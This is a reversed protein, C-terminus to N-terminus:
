CIQYLVIQSLRKGEQVTLVFQVQELFTLTMDISGVFSVSTVNLSARQANGPPRLTERAVNCLHRRDPTRPALSSVQKIPPLRCVDASAIVLNITAPLELSAGCVAGAKVAVCRCFIDSAARCSNADFNPMQILLFSAGGSCSRRTLPIM